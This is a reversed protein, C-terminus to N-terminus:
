SCGRGGKQDCLVLHTLLDPREGRGERNPSGDFFFVVLSQVNDLGGSVGVGGNPLYPRLFNSREFKARFGRQYTHSIATLINQLMYFTSLNLM